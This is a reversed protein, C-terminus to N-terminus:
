KERLYISGHTSAINMNVGGGNITGNVKNNGYRKMSSNSTNVEIDLDSYIEGWGTSLSLQAKSNSPIALDIDGHTSFMSIPNDQNISVFDGEIDGHVTSITMPGTM